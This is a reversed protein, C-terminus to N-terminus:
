CLISCFLMTAWLFVLQWINLLGKERQEEDWQWVNICQFEENPAWISSFAGRFSQCFLRIVNGLISKSGFSWHLHMYSYLHQMISAPKLHFSHWPASCLSTGVCWCEGWQTVKTEFPNVSWQRGRVLAHFLRAVCPWVKDILVCLRRLQCSVHLFLKQYVPKPDRFGSKCFVRSVDM